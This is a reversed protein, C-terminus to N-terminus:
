RSRLERGNKRGRVSQKGEEWKFIEVRIERVEIRQRRNGAQREKGRGVVVERGRDM